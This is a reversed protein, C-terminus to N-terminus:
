CHSLKVSDRGDRTSYQCQPWHYYIGSEMGSPVIRHLMWPPQLSTIILHNTNVGHYARKEM